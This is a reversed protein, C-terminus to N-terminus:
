AAVKRRGIPKLRRRQQRSRPITGCALAQELFFYDMQVRAQFGARGSCSEDASQCWSGANAEATMSDLGSTCRATAHSFSSHPRSSEPASCSMSYMTAPRATSPSNRRLLGDDGLAKEVFAAAHLEDDVRGKAAADVFGPSQRQALAEAAGEIELQLGGGGVVAQVDRQGLLM